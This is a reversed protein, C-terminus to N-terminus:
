DKSVRDSAVVGFRTEVREVYVRVRGKIITVRSQDEFGLRLLKV